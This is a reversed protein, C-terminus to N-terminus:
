QEKLRYFMSGPAFETLEYRGPATVTVDTWGGASLNSCQQLAYPSAGPPDNWALVIRGIGEKTLTIEPGPVLEWQAVAGNAVAFLSRGDSSRFAPYLVARCKCV